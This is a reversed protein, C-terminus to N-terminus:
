KFDCYEPMFYVAFRTGTDVNKIMKTKINNGQRRLCMIADGSNLLGCKNLIQLKSLAFGAKLLKLLRRRKILKNESSDGLKPKQTEQKKLTQELNILKKM